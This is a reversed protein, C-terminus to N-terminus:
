AVRARAAAVTALAAAFAAAVGTWAAVYGLTDVAAGFLVPGATLGIMFGTVVVGSAHGVAEPAETVIVVLMGVSNWAVASAGALIAAPWVLGAWTQPALLALLAAAVALAAMVGLSRGFAGSREAHTSWLLRAVVGVVGVTGVIAGAVAPSLGLRDTAYVPLFALMAASGAGMGAGYIALWGAHGSRLDARVPRAGAPRRTRGDHPLVVRAAALGLFPIVAVTAAAARWGFLAALPPIGFGLTLVGFQVGSQKIGTVLGRRGPEVSRAILQNTVPNGTGNLSGVIVAVVVLMTLGNVLTFALFGAIATLFTWTATRRHGVIDVVRGAIPSAMAGAFAATTAVWGLATRSIGLDDILFPGLVSFLPLSMTSVAMIMTLVVVLPWVGRGAGSVGGGSTWRPCGLMQM